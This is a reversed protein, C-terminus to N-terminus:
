SEKNMDWIVPGSFGFTLKNNNYVFPSSALNSCNTCDMERMYVKIKDKYLVNVCHCTDKREAYRTIKINPIDFINVNAKNAAAWETYPMLEVFGVRTLGLELMRDLYAACKEVSDIYGKILNCHLLINKKQPFKAIDELCPVIKTNFTYQNAIKHYHHCSIGFEVDCDIIEELKKMNTANTNVVIEAYKLEQRIFHVFKVFDKHLTPEGGTIGVKYIEYNAKITYFVEKFKEFDFVYGNNCFQDNACFKCKANCSNTLQVTLAVAEGDFQPKGNKFCPNMDNIKVYPVINEIPLM